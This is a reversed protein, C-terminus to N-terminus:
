EIRCNNHTGHLFDIIACIKAATLPAEFSHDPTGASHVAFIARGIEDVVPSGSSGGGTPVGTVLTGDLCSAIRGGAYAATQLNNISPNYHPRFYTNTPNSCRVKAPMLGYPSIAYDPVPGDLKIVAIDHANQRDATYRSFTIVKSGRREGYAPNLGRDYGPLVRINRFYVGNNFVCHAATIVADPQFQSISSLLAGSCEGEDSKIKVLQPIPLGVPIAGVPEVPPVGGGCPPVDDKAKDLKDSEIIDGSTLDTITYLPAGVPVTCPAMAISIDAQPGDQAWASSALAVACVTLLASLRM